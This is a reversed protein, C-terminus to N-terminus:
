VTTIMTISFHYKGLRHYEIHFHHPKMQIFMNCNLKRHNSIQSM